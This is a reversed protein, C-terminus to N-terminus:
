KWWGGGTTFWERWTQAKPIPTTQAPVSLPASTPTPVSVKPALSAKGMPVPIEDTTQAPVSFPESKPANVRPMIVHLYQTVMKQVDEPLLKKSNEIDALSTITGGIKGAYLQYLLQAQKIDLNNKIKELTAYEQDSLSRWLIANNNNNENVSIATTLDSNTAHTDSKTILSLIKKGTAVEWLNVTCKGNLSEGAHSQIRTGDTSFTIEVYRNQMHQDDFSHQNPFSQLQKGTITNWLTITDTDMHNIALTSNDPSFILESINNTQNTTLTISKTHEAINWISINGDAECVAMKTGDPNLAIKHTNNDTFTTELEGTKGNWIFITQANFDNAIIKTGDTNYKSDHIKSIPEALKKIEKGTSSDYLILDTESRVLFTNYKPNVESHPFSNKIEHTAIISGNNSDIVMIYSKEDPQNPDETITVDHNIAAIIRQGDHSFNINSILNDPLKEFSKIQNGTKGDWLILMEKQKISKESGKEFLQKMEFNKTLSAIIRSGDANINLFYVDGQDITISKLPQGTEANWIIINKHDGEAATVVINNNKSFDCETIEGEHGALIKQHFTNKKLIENKLYSVVPDVIQPVMLFKQMDTPLFYSALFASLTQAQTAGALSILRRLVGEGVTKDKLSKEYEPKLSEYYQDFQGAAIKDFATSLLELDDKTFASADIPNERNNPMNAVSEFKEMQKIQWEDIAMVSNDKVRVWIPHKLEQAKKIQALVIKKAMLARNAPSQLARQMPKLNLTASLTLLILLCQKIHGNMFIGRNYNKQM